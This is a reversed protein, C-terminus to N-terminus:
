TGLLMVELFVISTFGMIIIQLAMLQYIILLFRTIIRGQMWFFGMIEEPATTTLNNERISSDNSGILYIGYGDSGGSSNKVINCDRITVNTAGTVNVGYAGEAGGTSYTITNGDCNLDVNSINISFCTGTSSVDSTLTYVGSVNIIGGCAVLDPDTVYDFEVDGGSVGLDFTDQEGALNDLFVKYREDNSIIGFDAIVDLGDKEYVKVSGGNGSRAYITIDREKTLNREFKVRLYHDKPIETWNQDRSEVFDFVDEIFTRNEDLHEAETILIINYTQNSLYPISWEVYDLLNDEDRDYVNFDVFTRDEVWYVKIKLGDIVDYIEPIESFALVDTYNLSDPGSIVVEKGFEKDYEFATPAETYYEVVYKASTGSISIEMYEDTEPEFVAFGIFRLFRKWFSIDRNSEFVVSGTISGFSGDVSIVSVNESEKPLRVKVGKREDLSVNKFWRVPNGVVIRDRFSLIQLESQNKVSENIFPIRRNTFNFAQNRESAKARSRELAKERKENDLIKDRATAKGRSGGKGDGGEGLDGAKEKAIDPVQEPLEEPKGKEEPPGEARGSNNEGIAEAAKGVGKAVNGAIIKVSGVFDQGINSFILGFILLISIIVLLFHVTVRDKKPLSTGLYRHKIKGDERYSEYYYPGHLRGNKKIYKKYVM